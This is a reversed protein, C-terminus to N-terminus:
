MNLEQFLQILRSEIDNHPLIRSRPEGLMSLILSIREILEDFTLVTVSPISNRYLEFSRKQDDNLSEIRGIILVCNCDYATLGTKLYKQKWEETISQKYDLLQM